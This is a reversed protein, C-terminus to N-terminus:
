EKSQRLQDGPSNHIIFTFLKKNIVIIKNNCNPPVLRCTQKKTKEMYKVMGVVSDAELHRGLATGSAIDTKTTTSSNIKNRKEM